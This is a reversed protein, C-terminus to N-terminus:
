EGDKVEKPEAKREEVIIPEDSIAVMHEPFDKGGVIMSLVAQVSRKAREPFWAGYDLSLTYVYRYNKWDEAEAVMVRWIIEGDPDDAPVRKAETFRLPLECSYAFDNAQRLYWEEPMPGSAVLQEYFDEAFDGLLETMQDRDWQDRLQFSRM